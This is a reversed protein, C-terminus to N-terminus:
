GARFLCVGDGSDFVLVLNEYKKCRAGDADAVDVIDIVLPHNPSDDVLLPALAYQIIHYEKGDDGAYGVVGRQPLAERLPHLRKQYRSVEDNHPVVSQLRFGLYLVSHLTPLLTVMCLLLIAMTVRRSYDFM